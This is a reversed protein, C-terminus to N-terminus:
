PPANVAAHRQRRSELINRAHLMAAGAFIPGTFYPLNAEIWHPLYIDAVAGHESGLREALDTSPCRFGNLAYVLAEGTVVAGAIAARRDSRRALASYAFYALCSGISFFAITHTTKIAVLSARKVGRITQGGSTPGM